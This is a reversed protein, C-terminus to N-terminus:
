RQWKWYLKWMCTCTYLENTQRLLYDMYYLLPTTITNDISTSIDVCGSLIALM